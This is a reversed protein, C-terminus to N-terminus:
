TETNSSLWRSSQPSPSPSTASASHKLATTGYSIYSMDQTYSHAYSISYLVLFLGLQVITYVWLITALTTLGNFQYSLRYLIVAIIGTRQPVIFWLSSFNWLARSLPGAPPTLGRQDSMHPKTRNARLNSGSISKVMDKIFELIDLETLRLTM